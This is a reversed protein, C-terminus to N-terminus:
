PSSKFLKSVVCDKGVFLSGGTKVTERILKFMKERNAFIYEVFDKPSTTEPDNRTAWGSMELLMPILDLGKETLQYISKRKDNKDPKKILVGNQVLHSLRSSLINSAIGEKSDLFEGYTKKGWFVIDRIILLSWTDGFTELAFNVPCNSRLRPKKM